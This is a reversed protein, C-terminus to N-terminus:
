DTGRDRPGTTLVARFEGASPSGAADSVSANTLLDLANNLEGQAGERDPDVGALDRELLARGAEAQGLADVEKGQLIRGAIQTQLVLGLVLVVATSLALTSVVVRVQMSRRWIAAVLTGVELGLLRLQAVTRRVRRALPLREWRTRLRAVASTV